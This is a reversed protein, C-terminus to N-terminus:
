FRELSQFKALLALVDDEPDAVIQRLNDDLLLRLAAVVLVEGFIQGRVLTAPAHEIQFVPYFHLSLRV